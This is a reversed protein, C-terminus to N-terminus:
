QLLVIKKKKNFGRKMFISLRVAASARQSKTEIQGMQCDM